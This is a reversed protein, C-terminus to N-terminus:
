YLMRTLRLAPSTSTKVSVRIALQLVLWCCVSFWFGIQALLWVTLWDAQAMRYHHPQKCITHLHHILRHGRSNRSQVLHMRWILDTYLSNGFIYSKVESHWVKHPLQFNCPKIFLCLIFGLVDCLQRQIVGMVSERTHGELLNCIGYCEMKQGMHCIGLFAFPKWEM